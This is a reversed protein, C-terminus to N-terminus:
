KVSLANWMDAIVKSMVLLFNVGKVDTCILFFVDFSQQLTVVGFWIRRNFLDNFHM